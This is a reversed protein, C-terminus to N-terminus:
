RNEMLEKAKDYFGETFKDVVSENFIHYATDNPIKTYTGKGTSDNYGALARLKPLVNNAYNASDTPMHYDELSTVEKPIFDGHYEKGLEYAEKECEKAIQEISLVKDYSSFSESQKIRYHLKPDQSEYVLLHTDLTNNCKECIFGPYDAESDKKIANKPKRDSKEICDSCVVSCQNVIYGTIGYPAYKGNVTKNFSKDPTKVHKETKALDEATTIQINSDM